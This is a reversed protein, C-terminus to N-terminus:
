IHIIPVSNKQKDTWKKNVPRRPQIKQLHFRDKSMTGYHAGFVEPISIISPIINEVTFIFIIYVPMIKLTQRINIIFRLYINMVKVLGVRNKSAIVM